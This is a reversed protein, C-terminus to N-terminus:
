KNPIGPYHNINTWWHPLLFFTFLKKRNFLAIEGVGLMCVATLSAYPFLAIFLIFYIIELVFRALYLPLSPLHAFRKISRINQIWKLLFEIRQWKHHLKNNNNNNFELHFWSDFKSDIVCYCLSCIVSNM